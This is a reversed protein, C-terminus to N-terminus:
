AELSDLVLRAAGYMGADNGLAAQVIKADRSAYFALERYAARIKDLYFDGAKSVGGGIVYMEPDVVGAAVALGQALYRCSYNLVEDALADGNRAADVVDRAMFHDLSRLTSPADSQRLKRQAARIIGTASAAQELCGTKGCNCPETLGTVLPIHGLEGGAGHAGFVVRGNVIVGCGLGTGVTIMLMSRSGKGAGKWFEGLAAVNADNGAASAIGGNLKRSEEAVDVKGWGLNVCGNVVGDEQVPGPVGYGIGLVDGRDISFKKELEEIHRSIDGLIFRGKEQTRTPIEDKYLLEGEKSFIGCKVTTGGVDIGFVTKGDIRTMTM